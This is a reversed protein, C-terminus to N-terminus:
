RPILHINTFINASLYNEDFSCVQMLAPRNLFRVENNKFVLLNDERLERLM